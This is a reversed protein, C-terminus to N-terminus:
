DIEPFLCEHIFKNVDDPDLGLSAMVKPTHPNQKQFHCYRNQKEKSLAYDADNQYQALEDFYMDLNDLAMQCVQDMEQETQINGAAVMRPSFIAQAWDPL